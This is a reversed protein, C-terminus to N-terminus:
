AGYPAAARRCQDPQRGRCRCRFVASSAAGHRRDMSVFCPKLMRLRPKGPLHLGIELRFGIGSADGWILVLAMVVSALLVARTVPAERPMPRAWASASPAAPARTM